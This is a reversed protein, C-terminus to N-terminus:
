GQHQGQGKVIVDKEEMDSSSDATSEQKRIVAGSREKKWM